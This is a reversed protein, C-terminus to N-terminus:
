GPAGAPGGPDLGPETQRRPDLAREIQEPSLDTMERALERVPRRERFARKAIEAARDYGILPNLATAMSPSIEVYARCAEENAVLGAIARDAFLRSVNTLLRISELLNRAILPLMTNLDLQGWQAGVTVAVHHGMVQAGVQIVSECIVPNVKGPMISSGPQVAPLAVEGLGCRPGSNMLRVDNAIKMLSAAVTNLAGSAWLAADQAAQAEFHNAAERFETGSERSLIAIVRRAFDPHANLGTGVATGGLALERLDPLVARLRAVGHGVQAAYGSFEQGLRIPTADMLHTRATKVVDDWARAKEALAAQLHELAPLLGREIELVAAVHLATPIVDNSSQGLNVHDNPHVPRGLLQAARRAVVENANMNTSTGSGTQFVDVPFEADWRGAAVEGAAAAIAEALAPDLLGLEANVRAAVQKLRALSRLFAVPMPEGSVPFNEVARQTQPGYLASSPVRMEGLSDREVRFDDV